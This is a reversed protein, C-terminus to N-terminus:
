LEGFMVGAPNPPRKKQFPAILRLDRGQALRRERLPPFLLLGPGACAAWLGHVAASVLGARHPNDRNHDAASLCQRYRRGRRLKRRERWARGSNPAALVGRRADGFRDRGGRDGREILAIGLRTM